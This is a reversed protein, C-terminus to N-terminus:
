RGIHLGVGYYSVKDRFFQGYPSAGEYYEGLLSIRRSTHTAGTQRGFEFGARASVAPEWDLEESSKLDAGAVLRVRALKGSPALGGGQRFEVGGHVLSTIRSGPTEGFLYEGGAYARIPGIDFALIGEASQFAFNEREVGPRLVFEDGLHSSQHYLRLRGSFRDLRFTLPLGIVYDANILDYSPADLDFQAYVNAALGLEVGEGVRPGNYRVITFRDGVGISGLDTGFPSSSTGRVYSAFSGDSKPDAILPCFIEGRPFWNFGLTEDAPIGTDCNGSTHDALAPTGLLCAALLAAVLSSRLM